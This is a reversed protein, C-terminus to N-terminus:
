SRLLTFATVQHWQSGSMTQTKGISPKVTGYAYQFKCMSLWIKSNCFIRWINYWTYKSHLTAASVINTSDPFWSLMRWCIFSSYPLEKQSGTAHYAITQQRERSPWHFELLWLVHSEKKHKTVQLRYFQSEKKTNQSKYGTSSDHSKMDGASLGERVFELCQNVVDKRWGSCYSIVGYIQPIFHCCPEFLCSMCTIDLMEEIVAWMTWMLVFVVLIIQISTCSNNKGLPCVCRKNLPM